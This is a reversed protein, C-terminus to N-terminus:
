FKTVLVTSTSEGTMPIQMGLVESTGSIKMETKRELVLGTSLEVKLSGKGETKVNIKVEMGNTTQTGETSLKLEYSILATGNETKLFTYTTETKNGETILSDKWSEGAKVEKGPAALFYGAISASDSNMPLLSSMADAQEEKVVSTVRVEGKETVVAQAVVGIKDKLKEGIEGERDEKKDSDFNKQQGMADMDMKMRTTTKSLTFGDKQKGTVYVSDSIDTSINIQIDQGMLQQSVHNSSISSVKLQQGAELKVKWLKLKQATAPHFMLVLLLVPIIQKMIIVKLPLVLPWVTVPLSINSFRESEAEEIFM